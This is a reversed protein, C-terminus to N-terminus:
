SCNSPGWFTGAPAGDQAWWLHRFVGNEQREFHLQFQPVADQNIMLLYAQGNV